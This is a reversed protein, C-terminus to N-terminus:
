LLWMLANVWEGSGAPLLHSHCCGSSCPPHAIPLHLVTSLSFSLPNLYWLSMHMGVVYTLRVYTSCLRCMHAVSVCCSTWDLRNPDHSMFGSLVAFKCTLASTGRTSWTQMHFFVHSKCFFCVAVLNPNITFVTSFMPANKHRVLGLLCRIEYITGLCGLFGLLMSFSGVAILIYSVVKLVM